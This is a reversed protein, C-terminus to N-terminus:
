AYGPLTDRVDIILSEPWLSHVDIDTSVLGHVAYYAFIITSIPGSDLKEAENSGLPLRGLYSGV